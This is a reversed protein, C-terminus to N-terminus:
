RVATSTKRLQTSPAYQAEERAEEIGSQSFPENLEKCGAMDYTRGETGLIPDGAIIQNCYSCRPLLGGSMPQNFCKSIFPKQHINTHFKPPLM